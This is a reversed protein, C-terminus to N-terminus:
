LRNPLLSFALSFPRINHTCITGGELHQPLWFFRLNGMSPNSSETYTARDASVLHSQSKQLSKRGEM